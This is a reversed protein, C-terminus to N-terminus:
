RLAIVPLGAAIEAARAAKEATGLAASSSPAGAALAVTLASFMWLVPKKVQLPKVPKM